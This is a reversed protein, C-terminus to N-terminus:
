ALKPDLCKGGGSKTSLERTPSNQLETYVFGHKTWEGSNTSMNSQPTKSVSMKQISKQSDRFM